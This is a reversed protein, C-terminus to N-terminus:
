NYCYLEHLLLGKKHFRGLCVRHAQFRSDRCCYVNNLSQALLADSTMTALVLIERHSKSVSGDLELSGFTLTIRSIDTQSDGEM